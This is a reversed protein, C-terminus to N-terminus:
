WSEKGPRDARVVGVKWREGLEDTRGVSLYAKFGFAEMELWVPGPWGQRDDPTNSNDGM